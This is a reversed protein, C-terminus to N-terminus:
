HVSPPTRRYVAVDGFSFRHPFEELYPSTLFEQYVARGRRNAFDDPPISVIVADVEAAAQASVRRASSTLPFTPHGDSLPFPFLWLNERHALHTGFATSAVVSDDPGILALAREADSTPATDVTLAETAGPGFIVVGVLAASCLFLGARPWHWRRPLRAAGGAAAVLLFPLLPAGYHFKTSHFQPGASALLPLALGLAILFRGPRLLPLFGLPLLFGGVLLLNDERWVGPLLRAATRLPHLLAGSPTEALYGYHFAWHRDSGLLSGIAGGFAMWSLGVLVMLLRFKRHSPPIATIGCLALAAFVLGLDDRLLALAVGALVLARRDDTFAARLGLLLFPLALTTPHFDFLAANWLLPSVAYALAFPGFLRRPLGAAELTPRLALYGAGVALAQAALLWAPTTALWYLPVFLVLVPSLHDAFANWGITSVEPAQFHAMKWIAQDFVALDLTTSRFSAHRYWSLAFIAIALVGALALSWRDVALGRNRPTPSVGAIPDETDIPSPRTAAPTPDLALPSM